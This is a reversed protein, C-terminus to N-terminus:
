VCIHHYSSSKSCLFFNLRIIFYRIDHNYKTDYIEIYMRYLYFEDYTLLTDELSTLIHGVICSKGNWNLAVLVCHTRIAADMYRDATNM